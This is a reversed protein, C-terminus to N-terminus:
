GHKTPQLGPLTLPYVGPDGGGLSWVRRLHLDRCDKWPALSGRGAITRGSILLVDRGCGPGGRMQALPPAPGSPFTM